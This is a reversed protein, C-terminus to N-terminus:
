PKPCMAQRPKFRGILLTGKLKRKSGSPPRGFANRFKENSKHRCIVLGPTASSYLGFAVASPDDLIARAIRRDTATLRDIRASIGSELNPEAANTM